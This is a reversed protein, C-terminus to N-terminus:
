PVMPNFWKFGLSKIEAVNDINGEICTNEWVEKAYRDNNVNAVASAATTGGPNAGAGTGQRRKPYTMTWPRTYLTPDELTIQYDITNPEVRTWREIMHTNPGYFNGASDIWTEGNVGTVDVVLTEGEWRGRSNGFFTKAGSSLHARGDTPIVRYTNATLLIVQNRTQVIEQAGFSSRPMGVLCLAAPDGYLRQGTEGPWGRPPDSIYSEQPPTTVDIYDHEELDDNGGGIPGNWNGQLDPVGDPTRPAKYPPLKARQAVWTRAQPFKPTDPKYFAQGRVLVASAIVVSAVLLLQRM